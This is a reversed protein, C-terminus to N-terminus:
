SASNYSANRSLQSRCAAHGHPFVDAIRETQEHAIVSHRSTPVATTKWTKPRMSGRRSLEMPHPNGVAYSDDTEEQLLMADLLECVYIITPYKTRQMRDADSRPRRRRRLHYLLRRGVDDAVFGHPRDVSIAAWMADFARVFRKGVHEAGVEIYRPKQNNM